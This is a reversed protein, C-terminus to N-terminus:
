QWKQQILNAQFVISMNRMTHGNFATGISESISGIYHYTNYQFIYDDVRKDYIRNIAEFTNLSIELPKYCEEKDTDKKKSIRIDRIYPFDIQEWKINKLEAIRIGLDVGLEFFALEEWKEDEELCKTIWKYQMKAYEFSRDM